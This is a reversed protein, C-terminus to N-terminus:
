IWYSYIFCIMLMISYISYIFHQAARKTESWLLTILFLFFFVYKGKSVEANATCCKLGRWAQGFVLSTLGLPQSVKDNLNRAIGGSLRGYRLVSLGRHNGQNKQKWDGQPGSVRACDPGLNRFGLKDRHTFGNLWEQPPAWRRSKEQKGERSKRKQPVNQRREKEEQGGRDPDQSRELCSNKTGSACPVPSAGPEKEQGGEPVAGTQSPSAGSGTQGIGAPWRWEKATATRGM